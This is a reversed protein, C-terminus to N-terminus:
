QFPDLTFPFASCAFQHDCKSRSNPECKGKVGQGKGRKV